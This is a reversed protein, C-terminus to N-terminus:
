AKKALAEELLGAVLGNLGQPHSQAQERLQAALASPLKCAFPVLGAAADAKRRERKDLPETGAGFRQPIAANKRQGEIKLELRRALDTKKLTM